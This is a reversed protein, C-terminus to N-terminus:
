ESEQQLGLVGQVDFISFSEMFIRTAGMFLLLVLVWIILQNSFKM